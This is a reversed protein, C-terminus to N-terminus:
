DRLVPALYINKYKVATHDGQLYIPGPASPDTYIAGGTPGILPQNDIVKVGNLVVTVHRDVLTLDYTQWEGPRKGANVSPAIRSFIAGVGQLGQMRSDRDVVQAEYMGRLYVGSNRNAEILFEIHLWFDEFEAETRINSYAGTASFDTKPTNNVLMGDEVSWGNKKDTEHLRWGTLDKGNFIAKPQGFRVTSLDPASDPMPTVWKGTFHKQTVPGGNNPTAVIVGDLKGDILGVDVTRAVVIKSRKTKSKNLTFTLRGDQILADDYPGEPGVYLRMTVVPEGDQEEVHMWAPEGSDVDLSWFGLLDEPVSSTNALSSSTFSMVTLALLIQLPKIQNKM